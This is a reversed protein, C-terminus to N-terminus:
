SAAQISSNYSGFSMRFDSVEGDIYPEKHSWKVQQAKLFNCFLQKVADKTLAGDTWKFVMAPNRTSKNFCSIAFALIEPNEPLCDLFTNFDKKIESTIVTFKPNDNIKMFVKSLADQNCCESFCQIYHECLYKQLAQELEPKSIFTYGAAFSKQEALKKITFQKAFFGLAKSDDPMDSMIRAIESQFSSYARANEAVTNKCDIKESFNKPNIILLSSIMKEKVAFMAQLQQRLEKRFLRMDQMAEISFSLKAGIETGQHFQKLFTRLLGPETVHKLIDNSTFRDKISNLGVLNTCADIERLLGALFFRKDEMLKSLEYGAQYFGNANWAERCTNYDALSNIMKSAWKTGCKLRTTESNWPVTKKRRIYENVFDIVKSNITANTSYLQNYILVRKLNDIIADIVEDDLSRFDENEPNLLLFLYYQPNTSQSLRKDGPFLAALLKNLEVKALASTEKTYVERIQTIVDNVQEHISNLVVVYQHSWGDRFETTLIKRSSSLATAYAGYEKMVQLQHLATLQQLLARQEETGCAKILQACHQVIFSESLKSPFLTLISDVLEQIGEKEGYKLCLTFLEIDSDSFQNDGKHTDHIFNILRKAVKAKLEKLLAKRSEPDFLDSDLLHINNLLFVAYEKATLKKTLAQCAKVMTASELLDDLLQRSMVRKMKVFRNFQQFQHYLEVVYAEKSGREALNGNLAAMLVESLDLASPVHRLHELYNQIIVSNMPAFEKNVRVLDKILYTLERRTVLRQEFICELKEALDKMLKLQVVAAAHGDIGAYLGQYIVALYNASDVGTSDLDISCEVSAALQEIRTKLIGLRYKDLGRYLVHIDMPDIAILSVEHKLGKQVAALVRMYAANIEKKNNTIWKIETTIRENEFKSVLGSEDTLALEKEFMHELENYESITAARVQCMFSVGPIMVIQHLYAQCDAVETLDDIANCYEQYQHTYNNKLEVFLANIMKDLIEKPNSMIGNFSKQLNEIFTKKVTSNELKKEIVTLWTLLKSQVVSNKLQQILTKFLISVDNSTSSKTLQEVGNKFLMAFTVKRDDSMSNIYKDVSKKMFKLDMNVFYYALEKTGTQMAVLDDTLIAKQYAIAHDVMETFREKEMEYVYRALNGIVSLSDHCDLNTMIVKMAAIYVKLETLRRKASSISADELEAKAKVLRQELDSKVIELSAGRGSLLFRNAKIIDSVYPPLDLAELKAILIWLKKYAGSNDKQTNFNLAVIEKVVDQLKTYWEAGESASFDKFLELMSAEIANLRKNYKMWDDSVSAARRAFGNRKKQIGTFRSVALALEDTDIFARIERVCRDADKRGYDHKLLYEWRRLTAEYKEAKHTRGCLAKTFYQECLWFSEAQRFQSLDITDSESTVKDYLDNVYRAFIDALKEQQAPTNGFLQDLQSRTPRTDNASFPRWRNYEVREYLQNPKTVLVQQIIEMLIPILENDSVEKNDSIAKLKLIKITLGNFPAEDVHSFLGDILSIIRQKQLGDVDDGEFFKYNTCFKLLANYFCAKESGRSISKLVEKSSRIVDISERCFFAYLAKLLIASEQHNEADYEGISHINDPHMLEAMRKCNYAKLLDGMEDFSALAIDTCTNWQRTNSYKQLLSALAEKGALTNVLSKFKTNRLESGINKRTELDLVYIEMSKENGLRLMEELKKLRYLDKREETGWAEVLRDTAENWPRTGTSYRAFINDLAQMSGECGHMKRARLPTPPKSVFDIYSLADDLKPQQLLEVVRKFRVKQLVEKSACHIAILELNKDWPNDGLFETVANDVRKQGAVRLVTDNAFISQSTRDLHQIYKITERYKADLFFGPINSNLLGIILNLRLRQKTNSDALKTALYETTFCWGEYSNKKDGTTIFDETLHKVFCDELFTQGEINFIAYENIKHQELWSFYAEAKPHVEYGRRKGDNFKYGVGLKLLEALRKSRYLQKVRDNAYPEFLDFQTKENWNIDYNKAYVELLCNFKLWAEPYNQMVEKFLAKDRETLSIEAGQKLIHILRISLYETIQAQDTAVTTIITAYADNEGNYVERSNEKRLIKALAEAELGAYIRKKQDLTIVKEFLLRNLFDNLDQHKQEEYYLQAKEYHDGVMIGANQLQELVSGTNLQERVYEEATSVKEATVLRLVEDSQEQTLWQQAVLRKLRAPLAGYLYSEVHEGLMAKTDPFLNMLMAQQQVQLKTYGIDIQEGKYKSNQDLKVEKGNKKKLLKYFYVESEDTIDKYTGYWDLQTYEKMLKLYYQAQLEVQERSEPTIATKCNKVEKLLQRLHFPAFKRVLYDLNDCYSNSPDNDKLRETPCIAILLKEQQPTLKPTNNYILMEGQVLAKLLCYAEIRGLATLEGKDTFYTAKAKKNNKEAAKESDAIAVNIYRLILTKTDDVQEESENLGHELILTWLYGYDGVVSELRLELLESMSREPKAYYAQCLNFLKKYSAKKDDTFYDCEPKVIQAAYSEIFHRRAITWEPSDDQTIALHNRLKRIGESTLAQDSRNIVVDSTLGQAWKRNSALKLFALYAKAFHLGLGSTNLVRGIADAFPRKQSVFRIPKEEHTQNFREFFTESCNKGGVGKNTTLIFKFHTDTVDANADPRKVESEIKALTQLMSECWAHKRKRGRIMFVGPKQKNIEKKVAALVKLNEVKNKEEVRIFLLKLEDKTLKGVVSNGQRGFEVKFLTLLEATKKKNKDQFVEDFADSFTTVEKTLWSLYHLYREYEVRKNQTKISFPWHWWKPMEKQIRQKEEIICKIFEPKRTNEINAVKFNGFQQVLKKQYVLDAQSLEEGILYRNILTYGQQALAQGNSAVDNARREIDEGYKMRFKDGHDFGWILEPLIFPPIVRLFVAAAPTRHTSVQKRKEDIFEQLYGPTGERGLYGQAAYSVTAADYHTFDSHSHYGEPEVQFQVAYSDQYADVRWAEYGDLANDNRIYAAPLEETGEESEREIAVVREHHKNEEQSIILDNIKTTLQELEEFVRYVEKELQITASLEGRVFDKVEPLSPLLKLTEQETIEKGINKKIIADNEKQVEKCRGIWHKAELKQEKLQEVLEFFRIKIALRREELIHIDSQFLAMANHEFIKFGGDKSISKRKSRLAGPINSKELYPPQFKDDTLIFPEVGSRGTYSFKIENEKEVLTTATRPRKSLAKLMINM